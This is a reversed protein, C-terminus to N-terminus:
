NKDKDKDKGKDDSSGDAISDVALDVAVDAVVDAIVECGHSLGLNADFEIYEDTTNFTVQDKSTTNPQIKKLLNM